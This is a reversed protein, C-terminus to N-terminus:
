SAAQSALSRALLRAFRFRRLSLSTVLCARGGARRATGHRKQVICRTTLPPWQSLQQQQLQQEDEKKSEEIEFELDCELDLPDRLVMVLEWQEDREERETSSRIRRFRLNNQPIASVSIDDEFGSVEDLTRRM